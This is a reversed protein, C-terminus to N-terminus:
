PQMTYEENFYSELADFASDLNDIESQTLDGSQVAETYTQEEGTSPVSAIQEDFTQEPTNLDEYLDEEVVVSTGHDTQDLNRDEQSLITGDEEHLYASGDQTVEVGTESNYAVEGAGLEIPFTTNDNTIQDDLDNNDDPNEPNNDGPNDNSPGDPTDSGPNGGPNDNSPEDPNEPGVGPDEGSDIGPVDGKDKEEDKDEDENKQEEDTKDEEKEEDLDEDMDEETAINHHNIFHDITLATASLGGLFLAAKYLINKIKQLLTPKANVTEDVFVPDVVEEEEE